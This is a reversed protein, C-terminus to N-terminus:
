PRSPGEALLLWRVAEDESRFVRADLGRHRAMMGGFEAFSQAGERLDIFAIRCQALGMSVAMVVAEIVPGLGSTPLDEIVLIRRLGRRAVIDAIGCWADRQAAADGSAGNVRIVVYGDRDEVVLDVRAGKRITTEM